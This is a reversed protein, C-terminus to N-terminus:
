NNYNLMALAKGICRIAKSTKPDSLLTSSKLAVSKSTHDKRAKAM